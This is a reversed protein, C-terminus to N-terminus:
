RMKYHTMLGLEVFFWLFTLMQLETDSADHPFEIPVSLCGVPMHGM